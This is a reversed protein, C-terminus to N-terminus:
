RSRLRSHGCQQDSVTIRNHDRNRDNKADHNRNPASACAQARVRSLGSFAVEDTLALGDSHAAHTALGFLRARAPAEGYTPDVAIWHDRIAVIAWRHRVLAAAGEDLRYGTVLRTPIGRARALAAFLLAHATCDGRGQRLAMAANSSSTGLDDGLLDATARALIYAQERMSQPHGAAAIIRDALEIIVASPPPETAQESILSTDRATDVPPVNRDGAELTILWRQGQISVDQGPLPPPAPKGPPIPELVVTDIASLRAGHPLPLEISAAAVVDPPRFPATVAAADVRTAVVGDTSTTRLLTGGRGLIHLNELVGGPVHLRVRIRNASTPQLALQALAYDYGPLFVTMSVDATPGGRRALLLPLMEAPVANAPLKRESGDARRVHWDGNTMREASSHNADWQNVLVRYPRLSSDADIIINTESHVIADGRRVTVRERREFRLHERDQARLTESADGIRSGNWSLIFHAEYGSLPNSIGGHSPLTIPADIDADHMLPATLTQAPACSVSLLASMWMVLVARSAMMRRGHQEEM